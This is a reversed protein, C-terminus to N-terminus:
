NNGVCVVCFHEGQRYIQPASIKHLAQLADRKMHAAAVATGLLAGLGMVHQRLAPVGAHTHANM